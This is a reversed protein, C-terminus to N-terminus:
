LIYFILGFRLPRIKLVEGQSGVVENEFLGNLGYYVHLTLANYGASATLGYQWSRVDQNNFSETLANSVFKSRAGLNYGLKFGAYIRWFSFDSPTSNRWRLEIPLELTHTLLKNRKYDTGADPIRYEIGSPTDLARLNSYYNNFSYGIGMGLAFTRLRNIPMDRIFGGMVGYSFNRQAIEDSKRGWLNYSSGLYFQDERYKIDYSNPAHEQAIAFKGYLIFTLILFYGFHKCGKM